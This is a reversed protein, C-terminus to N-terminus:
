SAKSATNGKELKNIVVFFYTLFSFLFVTQFELTAINFAPFMSAIIVGPFAAYISLTMIQKLSFHSVTGPNMIHYVSSSMLTYFLVVFVTRVISSIFDTISYFVAIKLCFSRFQVANVGAPPSYHYNKIYEVIKKDSLEELYFPTKLKESRMKKFLFYTKRSKRICLATFKPVWLFTYLSARNNFNDINKENLEPFYLINVEKNIVIERFREPHKAPFIGNSKVEIEGFDEQLTRCIMEAKKYNPVIRVTVIFFTCLFSLVLLNTIARSYNSNVLKKFIDTGSCISLILRFFNM